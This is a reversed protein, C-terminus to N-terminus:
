INDDDHHNNDLKFYTELHGIFEFTKLHALWRRSLICSATRPLPLPYLAITDWLWM